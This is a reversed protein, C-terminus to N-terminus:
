GLSYAAQGYMQDRRQSPPNGRIFYRSTRVPAFGAAIMLSEAQQHAEPLLVRPNHEFDLSLGAHLLDAAADPTAAAWPGLLIPQAALFGKLNGQPDEAILIRGPRESDLAKLLPERNGGFIPKDWRAIRAFDTTITINHTATHPVRKRLHWETSLGKWAFGYRPYFALGADTSYLTISHHGVAELQDLCHKLLLGGAGSVQASPSIAMLGIHAFQEYDTAGVVGIPGTKSDLIWWHNPTLRRNRALQHAYSHPVNHADRLIQDAAPIDAETMPRIDHM